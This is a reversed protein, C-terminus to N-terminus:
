APCAKRKAKAKSQSKNLKTGTKAALTRLIEDLITSEVEEPTLPEDSIRLFSRYGTESYFNPDGEVTAYSSFGGLHSPTIGVGVGRINKELLWERDDGAVTWGAAVFPQLYEKAKGRVDALSDGNAIVMHYLDRRNEPVGGNLKLWEDKAPIIAFNGEHQFRATPGKYCRHEDEDEDEDEPLQAQQPEPGTPLANARAEIIELFDDEYEGLLYAALEDRDKVPCEDFVEDYSLFEYGDEHMGTGFARYMFAEPLFHGAADYDAPYDLPGDSESDESEDASEDGDSKDGKDPAPKDADDDPVEGNTVAASVMDKALLNGAKDFTWTPTGAEEAPGVAEWSGDGCRQVQWGPPPMESFAVAREFGEDTTLDVTFAAPLAAIAPPLEGPPLWHPPENRDPKDSNTWPMVVALGKRAHGKATVLVPGDSISHGTEKGAKDRLHKLGFTLRVTQHDNDCHESLAKAVDALFKWNIDISVSNGADYQPVM